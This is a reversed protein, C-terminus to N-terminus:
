SNFHLRHTSSTRFFRLAPSMSEEHHKVEALFWSHGDRAVLFDVEHKEKDRLYGFEFKGLGLRELRGCGQQECSRLGV